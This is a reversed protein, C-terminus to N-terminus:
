LQMQNSALLFPTFFFCNSLGGRWNTPRHTSVSSISPFFFFDHKTSHFCFHVLSSIILLEVLWNPQNTSPYLPSAPFQLFFLYFSANSQILSFISYLLLSWPTWWDMQDTLLLISLSLSSLRLSFSFEHPVRVLIKTFSFLVFFSGNDSFFWFCLYLLYTNEIKAQPATSINM